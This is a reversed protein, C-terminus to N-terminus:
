TNKRTAKECTNGRKLRRVLVVAALVVAFGATAGLTDLLVDSLAAGRNSFIQITEDIAAVPASLLIILTKARVSKVFFVAYSSLFVSLAFYEAFHALKRINGIIWEVCASATKSGGGTLINEVVDKVAGSQAESEVRSRISNSWIFAVTLVILAILIVKIAKLVYGM